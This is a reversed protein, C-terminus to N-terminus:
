VLTGLDLELNALRFFINRAGDSNPLAGAFARNQKQKDHL